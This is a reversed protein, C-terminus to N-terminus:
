SPRTRETASQCSAMERTTSQRETEHPLDSNCGPMKETAPPRAMERAMVMESQGALKAVVTAMGVMAVETAMETAAEMATAATHSCPHRNHATGM